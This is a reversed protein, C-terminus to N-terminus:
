SSRPSILSLTGQSPRVPPPSCPLTGTRPPRAGCNLLPPALLPSSLLSPSTVKENVRAVTQKCVRECRAGRAALEDSRMSRWAVRRRSRPAQDVPPLPPAEEKRLAALPPPPLPPLPSAGSAGGVGEELAVGVGRGRPRGRLATVAAASLASALHTSFFVLIQSLFFVCGCPSRCGGEREVEKGGRHCGDMWGCVCVCGRVRWAGCAWCAGRVWPM